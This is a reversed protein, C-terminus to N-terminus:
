DKIYGYVLLIIGLVICIWSIIGGIGQSVVTTNENSEIIMILIKNSCLLIVGCLFLGLGVIMKKM